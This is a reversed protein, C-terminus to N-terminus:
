SGDRDRPVEIDIEGHITKVTKTGYGNRRNDTKKPCKNNNEYGLHHNIEVQLM